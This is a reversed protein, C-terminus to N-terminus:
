IERDHYICELLIMKRILLNKYVGKKEMSEIYVAYSLSMKLLKVDVYDREDNDDEKKERWM